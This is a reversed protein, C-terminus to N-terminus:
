QPVGPTRSLSANAYRDDDTVERGIWDPIAVEDHESTMEVEALVLGEHLGEFVDIEWVHNGFPAKHRRKEVINPSSLAMMERADALPVEYEFEPRTLGIAKGKLTLVARTDDFIRIRVTAKASTSLYGQQLRAASTVASKWADSKLLFKREIEEAM